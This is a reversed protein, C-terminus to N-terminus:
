VNTLSQVAETRGEYRRWQSDETCVLIVIKAM